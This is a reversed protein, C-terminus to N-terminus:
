IMVDEDEQLRTSWIDDRVRSSTLVMPTLADGGASVCALLTLHRYRRSVLHYVEDPSVTRPAIVKRPKPDEWDSPGVEDLNFILEAFKRAVISTM